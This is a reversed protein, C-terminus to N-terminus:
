LVGDGNRIDGCVFPGGSDGQCADRGGLPYGACMMKESIRGKYPINCDEDSIVPVKVDYLIHNSEQSKEKTLGWGALTCKKGPEVESGSEPLTVKNVYENFELPKGM